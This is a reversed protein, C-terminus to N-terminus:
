YVTHCSATCQRPTLWMVIDSDLTFFPHFFFLTFLVQSVHNFVSKNIIESFGEVLLKVRPLTKYSFVNEM